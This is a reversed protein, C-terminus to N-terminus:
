IGGMAICCAIQKVEIFNIQYLTTINHYLQKKVWPLVAVLYLTAKPLFDLVRADYRGLWLTFRIM